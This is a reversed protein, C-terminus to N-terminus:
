RSFFISDRKEPSLNLLESLTTVESLKFENEGSLKKSFGYRSLNIQEALYKRKLGSNNITENLLELDIM